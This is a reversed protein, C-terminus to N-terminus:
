QTVANIKPLKAAKEIIASKLFSCFLNSSNKLIAPNTKKIIKINGTM